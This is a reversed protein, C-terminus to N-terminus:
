VHQAFNMWTCAAIAATETRLRASGLSVAEFGGKRLRDAEEATFDGEPGILMLAPAAPRYASTFARHEGECWGFYRQTPIEGSILDNLAIPEDLRPLWARQSQKMASVLVKNLRDLRLKARETRETMLPTIRDAGIETCKELMWEFRDIQKTPAVALHIPAKREPGLMERSLVKVSCAHRGAEIVEAEARTGKGDLLGIRDGARLRLVGTAHRAEEEPLEVFEGLLQPCYFLHKM